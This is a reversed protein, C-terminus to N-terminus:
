NEVLDKNLSRVVQYSTKMRLANVFSLCYINRHIFFQTPVLFCVFINKLSKVIRLMMYEGKMTLPSLCNLM